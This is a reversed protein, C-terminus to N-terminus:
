PKSHLAGLIKNYRDIMNILMDRDVLEVRNSRAAEKAGATFYSNTIAMMKTLGYMAKATVINQVAKNGVNGSYRKCQIGLRSGDRYHIILDCGQDGTPPTFETKLLSDKELVRFLRETFLEFDQGTMNDIKSISYNGYAKDSKELKKEYTKHAQKKSQKSKKFLNKFFKEILGWIIGVAMAGFIIFYVEKPTRTILDTFSVADTRKSISWPPQKIDFNQDM